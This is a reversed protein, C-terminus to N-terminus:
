RIEWQEEMSAAKWEGILIAEEEKYKILKATIQNTFKRRIEYCVPCMKNIYLTKFQDFNEDAACDETTKHCEYCVDSSCLTCPGIQTYRDEEEANELPFGSEKGCFDCIVVKVVRRCKKIVM